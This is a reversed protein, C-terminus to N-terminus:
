GQNAWVLKPVINGNWVAGVERGVVTGESMVGWCCMGLLPVLGYLVLLVCGLRYLFDLFM